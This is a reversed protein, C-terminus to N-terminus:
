ELPTYDILLSDRKLSLIFQLGEETLQTVNKESYFGKDAIIVADIFGSEQLCLKFSKQM